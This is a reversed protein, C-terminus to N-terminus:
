DKGPRSEKYAATATTKRRAGVLQALGGIEHKGSAKEEAPVAKYLQTPPKPLGTIYQARKFHGDRGYQELAGLLLALRGLCKEHSGHRGALYADM